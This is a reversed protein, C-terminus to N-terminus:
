LLRRAAAIQDRLSLGSEAYVVQRKGQLKWRGDDADPNRVPVYGCREMRHPIARRNKREMLWEAAETGMAIARETIRSLTTVEPNGLAELVDAL